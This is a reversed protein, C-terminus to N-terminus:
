YESNEKERENEKEKLKKYKVFWKNDSTLDTYKMDTKKDCNPKENEDAIEWEMADQLKELFIPYIRNTKGDSLWVGAKGESYGWQSKWYGIVGTPTKVKIGGLSVKLDLDKIKM